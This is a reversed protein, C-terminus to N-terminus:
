GNLKLGQVVATREVEEVSAFGAAQMWQMADSTQYCAGRQTNILIHVAFATTWAPGTSSEDLFRDKILLRGNPLLHDYVKKVLAANTAFDQYHLIDSMLALDYPGGLRDHNFNGALLSIRSDLGAEKVTKETLRLTPALDFVTATITPYVQCFAIANTGAGGGLDLMRLAGKLQLRRAFDPGSQQGIRHLVALVNGGLEPDTEFVHRDVSREGSRITEALKGWNNWEADHLQLLHGIFQPSQRVLHKEATSSNEYAEGTKTLLRMAVLANLLLRLAQEDATIRTAIEASLRPKGALSSFVDLQVATLLIKTEWYYGLQFIEALSLERAM